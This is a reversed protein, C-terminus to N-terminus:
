AVLLGADKGDGLILQLQINAVYTLPLNISNQLSSLAPPGVMNDSWMGLVGLADDFFGELLLALPLRRIVRKIFRQPKTLWEHSM